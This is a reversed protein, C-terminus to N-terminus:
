GSKMSNQNSAIFDALAFINKDNRKYYACQGLYKVTVLGAKHLTSLYQSLTLKSLGMKKQICSICVGFEYIDATAPLTFHKEPEKLLGLLELNTANSLAKFAESPNM